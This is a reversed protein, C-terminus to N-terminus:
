KELRHIKINEYHGALSILKPINEIINGITNRDWTFMRGYCRCKKGNVKHKSTAEIRQIM